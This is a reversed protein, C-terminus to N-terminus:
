GNSISVSAFQGRPREGDVVVTGDDVVAVDDDVVAIAVFCRLGGLWLWVLGM